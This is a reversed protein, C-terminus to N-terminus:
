YKKEELRLDMSGSEIGAAGQNLVKDDALLADSFENYELNENSFWSTAMDDFIMCVETNTLSLVYEAKGRRNRITRLVKLYGSALLLSWIASKKKTLDKFIIEEDLQTHFSKGNLLDEMIIKISIDSRRIFAGALANSSTNAWYPAFKKKKLFQIVSWPNYISDCNGFRFGDYWGKVEDARDSLGYEELAQFVENETFGFVTEDKCSTTTIVEMHNLDSFVSEKSIRTIGTMVGRELYTNTKFAAHFFGRMFEVLKDWYGNLYAEQMPTDYEDLLIIM